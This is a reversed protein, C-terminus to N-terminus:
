IIKLGLLDRQSEQFFDNIDDAPIYIGSVDYIDGDEPVPNEKCFYDYLIGNKFAMCHHPIVILAKQFLPEYINPHNDDIEFLDFFSFDTCDIYKYSLVNTMYYKVVNGVYGDDDMSNKMYKGKNVLKQLYDLDGKIESSTKGSLRKISRVVCNEKSRINKINAFYVLRTKAIDSFERTKLLNCFLLNAYTTIKQDEVFNIAAQLQSPFLSLEDACRIIGDLCMNNLNERDCFSWFGIDPFLEEEVSIGFLTEVASNTLQVFWPIRVVKYGAKEYLATTDRDKLIQKTSKYHQVGDFEVILKLAESRYDPRHKGLIELGTIKDHVWDDVDPFIVKLYTDLGTRYLGPFDSEGAKIADAETERLFGYKYSKEMRLDENNNAM